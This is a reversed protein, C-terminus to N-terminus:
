DLLGLLIIFVGIIAVGPGIWAKFVRLFDTWFLMALWAGGICFLAGIAFKIYKKIKREYDERKREAEWDFEEKKEVTKEVKPKTVKKTAM